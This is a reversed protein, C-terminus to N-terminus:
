VFMDLQEVVLRCGTVVGLSLTSPPIRPPTAGGQAQASDVLFAHNELHIYAQNEQIKICAHMLDHM